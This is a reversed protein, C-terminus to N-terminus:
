EKGETLRARSSWMTLLERERERRMGAKWEHGHPRTRAWALTDAAAAEVPRFTLGAAVAKSSDETLFNEGGDREPIWLPLEMWPEVGEALLFEDDVWVLTGSGATGRLCAGLMDHMSMAGSPTAANYVGTKREGAMALMWSALDRADILQVARRPNGPALIDGGEACRCPWYTFRDSPDYPGVILGPRVILARGPLTKEVVQECLAKLPGYTDGTIEEVTEDELRGVPATEDQGYVDSRAYVSMTSVFLYREVADALLESSQRVVRPVYGCTDIAVDWTRGRLPALGGDRDGHLREVGSFLDPNHVGRNFTTIEHGAALAREVLHRGLFVTGGIILLRM